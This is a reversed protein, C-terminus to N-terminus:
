KWAHNVLYFAIVVFAETIGKVTQQFPRAAPFKPIEEIHLPLLDSM